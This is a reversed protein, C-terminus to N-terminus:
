LVEKNAQKVLSWRQSVEALENTLDISKELIDKYDCLHYYISNFLEKKVDESASDLKIKDSIMDICEELMLMELEMFGMNGVRGNGNCVSKNFRISIGDKLGWEISILLAAFCFIFLFATGIIIAIM